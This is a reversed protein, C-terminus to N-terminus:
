INRFFHMQSKNLNCVNIPSLSLSLSLAGKNNQITCCNLVCLQSNLYNILSLSLIQRFWDDVNQRSGRLENRLSIGVVNPVGRFMVAVRSLGKLWVDVNFYEDGFFGNGDNLGCCWGPKSIHNDLIAMLNNAGLNNVVAQSYM